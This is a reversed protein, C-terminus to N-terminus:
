DNENTGGKRAVSSSKNPSRRNIRSILRSSFASGRTVPADYCGRRRPRREHSSAKKQIIRLAGRVFLGVSFVRARLFSTSRTSLIDCKSWTASTFLSFEIRRTENNGIGRSYDRSVEIIGGLNDRRPYGRTVVARFPIRWDFHFRKCVRGTQHIRGHLAARM